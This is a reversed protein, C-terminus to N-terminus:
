VGQFTNEIFGTKCFAICVAETKAVFSLESSCCVWLGKSHKFNRQYETNQSQFITRSVEQKKDEYDGCGNGCNVRQGVISVNSTGKDDFAPWAFPFFDFILFLILFLKEQTSCSEWITVNESDRLSTKHMCYSCKQRCFDSCKLLSAWARSMKWM